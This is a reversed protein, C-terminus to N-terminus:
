IDKRKKILYIKDNPRVLDITKIGVKNGKSIKEIMNGEIQMSEIKQRIVGTSPGIIYIEDGIKIESAEIKVEAANVKKYYNIIVGVYEKVETSSSGYKNTWENKPQNLYFGTHFKRNYVKKLEEILVKIEERNLNNDLAKKYVEIIVKVYEATKNRGEIKLCDLFKLENIIPLTCLDKPSMVYNNGLKLEFEQDVDKITYERRCPQICEGRNASKGFLEQSMFCRGSISVCMAGHCFCELEVQLNNETIKNKIEKIQKISLERALVIRKVGLEAYFKLSEFNSISAQTSLHVELGLSLAKKVVALDWAIIADIKNEKAKKLINDMLELEHDYVITNLALYAKINNNHCLKTIEPLDKLSFNKAGARMNLGKIGFYISDAKVKIAANLMSFDGVPALLETM